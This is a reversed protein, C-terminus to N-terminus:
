ADALAKAKTVSALLNDYPITGKKLASYATGGWGSTSMLMRVPSSVRDVAARELAEGISEMHTQGRSGVNTKAVLPEFGILTAPDLEVKEEYATLGMRVDLGEFMLVHDPYSNETSVLPTGNSGVSLSQGFGIFHTLLDPSDP